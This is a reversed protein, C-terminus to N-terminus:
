RYLFFLYAACETSIVNDNKIKSLYTKYCYKFFDYQSLEKQPIKFCDLLVRYQKLALTDLNDIFFQTRKKLADFQDKLVYEKSYISKVDISGNVLDKILLESDVPNESSKSSFQNTYITALM